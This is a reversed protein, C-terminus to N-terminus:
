PKREQWHSPPICDDCPDQDLKVWEYACNGCCKLSEIAADARKVVAYQDLQYLIDKDGEYEELASM